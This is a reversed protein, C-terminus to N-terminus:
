VNSGYGAGMEETGADSDVMQGAHQVIERVLKCVDGITAVAQAEDDDTGDGGAGEESAEEGKPEVAVTFKGDPTCTIEIVYGASMDPATDTDASPDGAMAPMAGSTPATMM